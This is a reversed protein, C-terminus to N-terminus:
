LERINDIISNKTEKKIKFYLNLSCMIFLIVTALIAPWICFGLFMEKEKVKEFIKIGIYAIFFIGFGIGTGWGFMSLLQRIYSMTLDKQTTGVARLTGIERKNERIRATLSNNIISMSGAMLLIMMSLLVFFLLSYITENDTELQYLSSVYTYESMNITISELKNMIEEDTEVTMNEKHEKKLGAKLNIYNFDGCINEMGKHTTILYIYGSEDFYRAIETNCKLHASIKVDKKKVEVNEYREENDYSYDAFLVNLKLTDGVGMDREAADIYTESDKIKEDTHIWSITGGNQSPEEGYAIKDPAYLIIEEGSDLRTTDIKGSELRNEIIEILSDDVSIVKLGFLEGDTQCYNKTIKGLAEDECSVNTAFWANHSFVKMYDSIEPTEILTPCVKVGTVSGIYPIDLIEQKTNENFGTWLDNRANYGWDYAPYGNAYLSYDAIIGSEDSMAYELYSFGFCSGIITIILFISVATQKQRYFNLNRNALLKAVNFTSKSKIKKKKMKRTIEINRISQVPSIKSATRLPVFSSVVVCILSFVGSLLLMPINPVFVFDEGFFKSAFKVAFYAIVVSAPACVLSIIIAERGFVKRIQRKTAGVTRLMGIQKKRDAINSNMANIIGIFSAFLLVASFFVAFLMYSFISSSRLDQNHLNANVQASSFDTALTYERSYDYWTYADVTDDDTKIDVTKVYGVKAEKSGPLMEGSGSVFASPLFDYYLKQELLYRSRKNKLIGTLTFDKETYEDLLESGNQGRMYVTFTDGVKLEPNIQLLTAKELAIEGDKTPYAGELLSVYYFDKAKEDLYAVNLNLEEGDKEPYIRGILYAFAYDSIVNKRVGNEYFNDGEEKSYVIKDCNGYNSKSYEEASTFVSSVFFLMTSSFLMSLFIGVFMLTYQKKRHKLNSRALSNITLKTKM